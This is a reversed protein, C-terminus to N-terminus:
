FPISRAYPSAEIIMDGDKRGYKFLKGQVVKSDIYKSYANIDETTNTVRLMLYELTTDEGYREDLIRETEKAFYKLKESNVQLQFSKINTDIFFNAIVLNLSDYSNGKSKIHCLITTTLEQLKKATIEVNM